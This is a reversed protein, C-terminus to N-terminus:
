DIHKAARWIAVAIDAFMLATALGTIFDDGILGPDYALNEIPHAALSEGNAFDTSTQHL